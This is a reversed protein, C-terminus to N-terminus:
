ILSKDLLINCCFEGYEEYFSIMGGYKNVINEVNRIGIGHMDKNEKTTKLWKNKDFVSDDISNTILISLYEGKDCVDVMIRQERSKAAAEIANDLLNGFLVGIDLANLNNLCNKMTKVEIYIKKQNCIAIKSNIIANFAENKTDVYRELSPFKYRTIDNIYKKAEDNKGADIYGQIVAFLNDMDHRVSRMEQVYAKSSEINKQANENSQELLSMRLRMEYDNNLATFFYYTAIDAAIIGFMGCLIYGNIDDHKMAALMLSVLAVISMIPVIILLIWFHKDIPNNYKHKLIIRTIYFLLLQALVVIIVRTSNFVTMVKIPDYGILNSVFLNIGIGVAVVIIETLVSMWLKLYWQGKLFLVAYIFVILVPIFVGMGEFYTIYNSITVEAFSVLWGLLFGIRKRSGNYKYGLYKSIFDIIIYEEILNIGLEFILEM